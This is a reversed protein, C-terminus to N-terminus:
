KSTEPSSLSQIKQEIVGKRTIDSTEYLANRYNKVAEAYNGSAKEIDGLFEMYQPDVPKKALAKHMWLRADDFRGERFYLWALNRYDVFCLSCRSTLDELLPKAREYQGTNIYSAAIYSDLTIREPPWLSDLGEPGLFQKIFDLMKLVNEWDNHAELYEVVAVLYWVYYHYVETDRMLGGTEMQQLMRRGISLLYRNIMAPDLHDVPNSTLRFLFGNDPLMQRSFYKMLYPYLEFYVPRRQDLNMALMKHMFRMGSEGRSYDEVPVPIRPYRGPTIHMFNDPSLFDSSGVVAIDERLRMVDQYTRFHFWLYTPIVMADSDMSAFDMRFSHEVRRDDSLDVRPYSIAIQMILVAVTLPILIKKPRIKRLKGSVEWEVIQRMGMAIWFGIVLFLQLHISGGPWHIFFLGHPLFTFGLLVVVWPFRRLNWILGVLALAVGVVTVEQLINSGQMKLATRWGWFGGTLFSSHAEDDKRDTIHVLMQKLTHPEGFDINPLTSSRIPLYLYVSFGILFFTGLLLLKRFTAKQNRTCFVILLGPLLFAVTAHNGASVGYILACLYIFRDDGSIHWRVALHLILAVFMLHLTYVEASLASNWFPHGVAIIGAAGLSIILAERPVAGGAELLRRATRVFVGLAGVACLASFLNIRFAINGLPLFYTWRALLTYAPFGAPHAVGLTAVTDVFEPADRWYLFPATTWLYLLFIALLSLAEAWVVGPWLETIGNHCNKDPKETNVPSNGKM